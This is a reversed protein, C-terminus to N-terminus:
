LHQLIGYNLSSCDVYLSVLGKTEGACLQSIVNTKGSLPPGVLAILQDGSLLRSTIQATIKRPLSFKRALPHTLDKLEGQRAIIREETFQRIIGTWISPQQGLLLKVAEDKEAAACSLSRKVLARLAEEDKNEAVWLKKDYTTYFETKEGNSIVVLPPMPDLLRAYSIGQERDEDLLDKGPRKLEFLIVPREDIKILVDYRGFAKDNEKGNVTISKHGFHLTFIDQHSIKLKGLTPFIRQLESNLRAELTAEDM